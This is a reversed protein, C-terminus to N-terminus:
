AVTERRAKNWDGIRQKIWEPHQYITHAHLWAADIVAQRCPVCYVGWEKAGGCRACPTM